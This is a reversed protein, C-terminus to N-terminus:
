KLIFQVKGDMGSYSDESMYENVRAMNGYGQWILIGKRKEKAMSMGYGKGQLTPM